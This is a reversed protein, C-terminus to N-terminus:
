IRQGTKLDVHAMSNMTECLQEMTVGKGFRSEVMHKTDADNMRAPLIFRDEIAGALRELRALSGDPDLKPPTIASSM